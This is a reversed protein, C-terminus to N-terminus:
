ILPIGVGRAFLESESTDQTGKARVEMDDKLPAYYQFPVDEVEYVFPLQILRSQLSLFVSTNKEREPDILRLTGVAVRWRRVM